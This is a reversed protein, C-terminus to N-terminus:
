RLKEPNFVEILKRALVRNPDILPVGRYHSQNLALPLETCGLLIAKAGQEIMSDMVHELSIVARPDVPSSCAKVGFIDDYVSGHVEMQQADDPLIVGYGANELPVSYLKQQMTGNTGLVGIPTSAADFKSRIAEMTTEILHIVRLRSGQEAMKQKTKEFIPDSHATNCAIAAVTAGAAELRLFLSGIPEGPNEKITGLLFSSRDPIEEPISLIIVPLHEQDFNANTEEIIKRGVDLGALPGAGSVIGIM